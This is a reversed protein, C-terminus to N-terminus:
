GWSVLLPSWNEQPLSYPLFNIYVWYNNNLSLDAGLTKGFWISASPNQMLKGPDFGAFRGLTVNGLRCAWERWRESRGQHRGGRRRCMCVSIFVRVCVMLSGRWHETVCLCVYASRLIISGTGDEGHMLTRERGREEAARCAERRSGCEWHRLTKNLGNPVFLFAVNTVTVSHPLSYFYSDTACNRSLSQTLRLVFHFSFGRFATQLLKLTDPCLGM